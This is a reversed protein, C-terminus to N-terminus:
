GNPEHSNEKTEVCNVSALQVALDRLHSLIGYLASQDIVSGSLITEDQDSYGITLGGLWESWQEDIQGKIRIEVNLPM